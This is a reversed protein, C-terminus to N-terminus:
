RIANPMYDIILEAEPDLLLLNKNVLRYELEKPLPPLTTLINAPVTPLPEKDPYKENIKLPVVPPADGKIVAKTDRGTEGKMEPALLRRFLPQIEPTFIEGPRADIRLVRIRDALVLQAETIKAPDKTEKLRPSDKAAKKRVEVYQNVRARFEALLRATDDAKQSEQAAAAAGCILLAAFAIYIRLKM